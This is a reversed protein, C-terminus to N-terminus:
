PKRESPTSNAQQGQNLIDLNGVLIDETGDFTPAVRQHQGHASEQSRRPRVQPPDRHLHRGESLGKARALEGVSDARSDVAELLGSKVAFAVLRSMWLGSIAEFVRTEPRGASM